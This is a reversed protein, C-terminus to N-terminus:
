LVATQLVAFLYFWSWSPKVLDLALDAVEGLEFALLAILSAAEFLTSICHLASAYSFLTSRSLSAVLNFSSIRIFSIICTFLLLSSKSICVSICTWSAFIIASWSYSVEDEDELQLDLKGDFDSGSHKVKLTSNEHIRIKDLPLKIWARWLGSFYLGTQNIKYITSSKWLRTRM